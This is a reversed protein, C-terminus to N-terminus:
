AWHTRTRCSSETRRNSKRRRAWKCRSAISRRWINARAENCSSSSVLAGCSAQHIPRYQFRRRNGARASRRLFAPQARRRRVALHRPYFGAARLRARSIARQKVSRGLPGGYALPRAARRRSQLVRDRSSQRRARSFLDLLRLPREAAQYDQQPQVQRQASRYIEVRSRSGPSQRRSLRLPQRLNEGARQSRRRSRDLALRHQSTQDHSRGPKESSSKWRWCIPSYRCPKTSRAANM